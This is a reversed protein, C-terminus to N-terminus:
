FNNTAQVTSPTPNGTPKVSTEIYICNINCMNLIVHSDVAEQVTLYFFTYMNIIPFHGMNFFKM